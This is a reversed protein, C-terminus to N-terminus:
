LPKRQCKTAIGTPPCHTESTPPASPGDQPREVGRDCQAVTATIALILIFILKM